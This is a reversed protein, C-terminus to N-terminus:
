FVFVFIYVVIRQEPKDLCYAAFVATKIIYPGWNKMLLEFVYLSIIKFCNKDNFEIKKVGLFINHQWL